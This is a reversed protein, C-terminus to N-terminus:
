PRWNLSLWAAQRDDYGPAGGAGDFSAYALEASWARSLALRAAANWEWGLDDNGVVTDFDHLAAQLVLGRAFSLAPLSSLNAEGELSMAELGTAPANEFLATWGRQGHRSAFPYTVGRTGDGELRQYRATLSAPGYALGGAAMVDDLEFDGVAAGYDVQRAWSGEYDFVAPGFPLSGSARAGYTASSQGPADRLDILYAFGALRLANSQTWGLHILHSDSEQDFDDGYVDNMRWVYAYALEVGPAIDYAAFAADFTRDDQRWPEDGVYREDDFELLQRGLAAYANDHDYILQVRNLEVNGAAGVSPHPYGGAGPPALDGEVVTGEVEVLASLRNFEGTIFGVRARATAAEAREPYGGDKIAEVRIRGDVFLEGDAIADALEGATAGAPVLALCLASAPARVM